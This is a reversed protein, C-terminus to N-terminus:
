FVEGVGMSWTHGGKGFGADARLNVHYKKSLLFRIGGGASPLFNNARFLEDGGPAVGGIGGFGVLGFRKPLALRYELQTVLMYRDLYRGATYGRLRNNTGYLCNGYFPPEGGTGCFGLDFALVQKQSVSVFKNFTFKYSQFSYKSGLGQSFFDATFDLFTGTTPYFRNPRTDRQLRFGLSRLNTRLGLDPPSPTTSAESPRVTITSEGMLVRTGLFFKWGVRRSFEGFFFQGTQKLPLKVGAKGADIGVGYLDYNLNGHAYVASAHYTNEHFFLDGALVFARSGNNTVLGAGGIVSPPSVKDHSSIHFIYALVPVIGTGLAPSSIPLPAVIFSELKSEVPTDQAPAKPDSPLETHKPNNQPSSTQGATTGEGSQLERAEAFTALLTLCFAALLLLSLDSRVRDVKARAYLLQFDSRQTLLVSVRGASGSLSGM